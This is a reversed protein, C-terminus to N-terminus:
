VLRIEVLLDLMEEVVDEDVNEEVDVCQEEADEVIEQMTPPHVIKPGIDGDGVNGANTIAWHDSVQM